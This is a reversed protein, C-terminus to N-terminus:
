FFSIADKLVGAVRYLLPGVILGVAAALPLARYLTFYLPRKAINVEAALQRLRELNYAERQMVGELNKLGVRDVQGLLSVLIEAEPINLNKRLVELARRPGAPWCALCEGVARRLRPTLLAAARMAQPLAYGARMYLEVAEFLVTLERIAAARDSGEKLKFTMRTIILGVAGGLTVLLALVPPRAGWGLFLMGAMGALVAATERVSRPDSPKRPKKVREEPRDRRTSSLLKVAMLTWAGAALGLGAAALFVSWAKM